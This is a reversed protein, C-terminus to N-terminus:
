FYFEQLQPTKEREWAGKEQRVTWELLFEDRFCDDLTARLGENKYDLVEVRELTENKPGIFMWFALHRYSMELEMWLDRREARGADMVVEGLGDSSHDIHWTRPSLQIRFIRLNFLTDLLATVAEMWNFECGSFPFVAILDFVTLSAALCRYYPTTGLNATTVNTPSRPLWAPMMLQYYEYVSYAPVSSGENFTLHTWPRLRLVNHSENPLCTDVGGSEVLSGGVTPYSLHITQFPIRFAWSDRSNDLRGLLSAMIDPLLALSLRGPNLNQMIWKIMGFIINVNVNYELEYLLVSEVRLRPWTKDQLSGNLELLSPYNVKLHRFLPKLSCIRLSHCTLSVNKLPQLHCDFLDLRPQDFMRRESPPKAGLYSVIQEVIETPLDQFIAM